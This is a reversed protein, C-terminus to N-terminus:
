PRSCSRRLAQSYTTAPTQTTPHGPPRGGARLHRRLVEAGLGGRPRALRRVVRDCGRPQSAARGACPATHRASPVPRGRRRTPMFTLETRHSLFLTTLCCPMTRAGDGVLFSVYFPIGRSHLQRKALQMRLLVSRAAVHAQMIVASRHRAVPAAACCSPGCHHQADCGAVAGDITRGVPGATQNAWPSNRGLEQLCCSEM